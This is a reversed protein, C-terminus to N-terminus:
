DGPDPALLRDLLELLDRQAFPKMPYHTAGHHQDANIHDQMADASAM